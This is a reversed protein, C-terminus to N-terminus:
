RFKSKKNTKAQILIIKLFDQKKFRSKLFKVETKLRKYDKRIYGYVRPNTIKCKKEIYVSITFLLIFIRDFM